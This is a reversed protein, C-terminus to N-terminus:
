FIMFTQCCTFCVELEQREAAMVLMKAAPHVVELEKLITAADSTVFLKDKADIILKNMGNPGLSTRTTESLAKCAQINRLTAENVGAYHRTGEKLLSSVGYPNNGAM